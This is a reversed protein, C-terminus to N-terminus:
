RNKQLVVVKGIHPPMWHSYRCEKIVAYGPINRFAIQYTDGQVWWWSRKPDPQYHPDYLYFGNFEFGGDINEPNINKNEMLDHLLDWRIRNWTLYDRTGCIAFLSFAALLAVAAFRITRINALPFKSFRGFVGAVGAALLPIVPVLYRDRYLSVFLPLLYIMASLLLFIGVAENDSIKRWLRPVLNIARLSLTAILFSAGLLSMATIAVWFSMPLAPVSGLCLISADRLTLPGIGSEVIINRSMPMLASKGCLTLVGSVVVM